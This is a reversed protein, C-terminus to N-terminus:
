DIKNQKTPLAPATLHPTLTCIMQEKVQKAIIVVHFLATKSLKPAHVPSMNKLAIDVSQLQTKANVRTTTTNKASTAGKLISITTFVVATLALMYGTGRYNSPKGSKIVLESLANNSPRTEYNNKLPWSLSNKVVIM